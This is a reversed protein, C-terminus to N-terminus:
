LKRLEESGDKKITKKYKYICGPFPCYVRRGERYWKAWVCRNCKSRKRNQDTAIDKDRNIREFAKKNEEM